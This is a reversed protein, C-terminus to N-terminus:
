IADQACVRGRGRDRGPEIGSATYFERLQELATEVEGANTKAYPETELGPSQRAAEQLKQSLAKATLPRDTAFLLSEIIRFLEMGENKILRAFLALADPLYGGIDGDAFAAAAAPVIAM